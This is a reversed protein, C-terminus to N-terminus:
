QASSSRLRPSNSLREGLQGLLQRIAKETAFGLTQAGDGCGSGTNQQANGSGEATTGLVRGAPTEVAMNASIEVTSEATNSWLGPTFQIRPNFSDASIVIMGAKGRQRLTDTTLPSEVVELDAVLQQITKVTSQKFGDAANIPFHHASCQLGTPKVDRSFGDTSIYLAYAGPLKEGYSSYVSLNPNVGVPAQYACAGVALSLSALVMGTVPRM